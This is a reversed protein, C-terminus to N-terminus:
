NNEDSEPADLEMDSELVSRQDTASDVSTALPAAPSVSAGPAISDDNLPEITFTEMPEGASVSNPQQPTSSPASYSQNTSIIVENAPSPYSFNSPSVVQSPQPMGTPSEVTVLPSAQQSVASPQNVYTVM